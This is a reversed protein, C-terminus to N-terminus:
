FIIITACIIDALSIRTVTMVNGTRFNSMSKKLVWLLRALFQNMGFEVDFWFVTCMKFKVHLIIIDKATFHAVKM